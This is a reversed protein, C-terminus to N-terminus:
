RFISVTGKFVRDSDDNLLEFIYYYTGDPLPNGNFTGDWENNYNDASFVLQGWRNLISLTNDPFAQVCPIVFKENVGDGNPTFGMNTSLCDFRESVPVEADLILQCGISDTVVVRYTGVLLNSISDGTITPDTNWVYSYPPVGGEATVKATGKKTFNDETTAVTATLVPPEIITFTVSDECGGGDILKVTYDGGSLNTLEDGTEGTSWTYSYPETGGMTMVSIAGSGSGNCIIPQTDAIVELTTPEGLIATAITTDGNFDIVTVSYTGPALNVAQEGIQFNSWTFSYPPCGGTVLATAVANATDPCGNYGFTIDAILSDPIVTINFTCSDVNGSADSAYATVPTTGVPFTDGQMISSSFILSDCNDTAVPPDWTVLAGCLGSDTSVSIDPVCTTIVPAVTDQLVINFSIVSENGATDIATYTVTNTGAIFTDGPQFDSFSTDLECNDLPIPPIWSVPLSCVDAALTLNIDAPPNLFTPGISDVVTVVFECTDKNGAGDTAIYTVTTSGLDFTSGPLISIGYTVLGCDDEAVPADWTVVAQCLGSDASVLITDPCNVFEPPFQDVALEVEFSDTVTCGAGDSVIVIYEGGNLSDPDEVPAAGNNWLFTYTGPGTGGTVTLDISGSNDQCGAESVVGSVALTPVATENWEYAGLDVGPGFPRADGNIDDTPAATADAIDRAASCSVLSLNGATDPATTFDPQSFFIPNIDVVNSGAFGGEVTSFSVVADTNLDTSIESSNGWLISNTITFDSNAQARIGGGIVAANGSFSCNLVAGESGGTHFIAGGNGSSFNSKFECNTYAVDSTALAYVAGGSNSINGIFRCKSLTTNANDSCLIAGGSTTSNNGLFTSSEITPSSNFVNIAGGRQSNNTDFLVNEVIGTGGNFFYIAGGRETAENFSMTSNRITPSAGSAIYVAGGSESENKEIICDEIVPSAGINMIMAGGRFIATNFQFTCNSFSPSADERMYVAGGEVDASNNSFTIDSLTGASTKFFSIAGGQRSLNQDFVCDTATLNCGSELGIGGGRSIPLPLGIGSGSIVMNSTDSIFAGGGFDSQNMTMTANDMTILSKATAFLGGGSTLSINDSIIVNNLSLNSNFAYLGAGQGDAGAGDANGAKITFGDLITETALNLATVVHYTNDGNNSFSPGDNSLMDGSLITVNAQPNRQTLETESGIFGGYVAVGDKLSFTSTRSNVLPVYTGEAVWIEGANTNVLATQLDTYADEWSTGNNAGTAFGNVYVIQSSASSVLFFLILSFLFTAKVKM